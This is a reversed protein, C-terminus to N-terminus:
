PKGVDPGINGLSSPLEWSCYDSNGMKGPPTRLYWFNNEYMQTMWPKDKVVDGKARKGCNFFAPINWEKM